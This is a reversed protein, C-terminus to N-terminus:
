EKIKKIANPYSKGREILRKLYSWSAKENSSIYKQLEKNNSIDEIDYGFMNYIMESHLYGVEEIIGIMEFYGLFNDIDSESYVGGNIKLLARGRNMDSIINSINPCPYVQQNLSILNNVMQSKISTEVQRSLINAQKVFCSLMFIQIIMLIIQFLFEINFQKSLKEEERSM